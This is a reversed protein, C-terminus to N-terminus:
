LNELAPNNDYASKIKDLFAARIICGGKWIRACEGLDIGWDFEDSAARILNMGQAYSCIKSCYLASEVDDCLQEVEASQVTAVPPGSLQAAMTSRAGKEFSIFRTDLASAITPAASAREAAEQATMKGTGKNGIADLIVDVLYRSSDTGETVPEGDMYIDEDRKRLIDATIEILFSDLIGTNWREFTDALAENSMGGISKLITYAESILQMDGYEIGNHVMKVYNGCGSGSGVHTVCPGSDTQAAIKEFIPKLSEYGEAPGGPMLSPGYRAGYEGGSVGMAMYMIGRESVMEARAESNTFLENGGDILIDGPEMLDAFQNIVIDVVRDPVM